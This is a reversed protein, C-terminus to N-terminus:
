GISWIRCSTEAIDGGPYYDRNLKLFLPTPGIIRCVNDVLKARVSRWPFRRPKGRIENREIRAAQQPPRHLPGPLAFLVLAYSLLQRRASM